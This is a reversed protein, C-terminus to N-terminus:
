QDHSLVGLHFEKHHHRLYVKHAETINRLRMTSFIGLLLMDKKALLPSFRILGDFEFTILGKDFLADIHATLLLGNFPDLREQDNCLRWPKIHSARLVALESVGTVACSGWYKVLEIRFIGQGVRAEVLADRKTISLLGEDNKYAEDLNGVLPDTDKYSTTWKLIRLAEVLEPHMKWFLENAEDRFSEGIVNTWVGWTENDGMANALLSGLKGYHLYVGNAHKFGAAETLQRVTLTFNPANAHAALMRRHLPTIANGLDIIADHYEKNSFGIEHAPDNNIQESPM